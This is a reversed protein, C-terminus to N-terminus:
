VLDYGGELCLVIRGQPSLAQLRRTMYAYGQAL